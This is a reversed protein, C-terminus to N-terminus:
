TGPPCQRLWWRANARHFRTKQDVPRDEAPSSTKGEQAGPLRSQARAAVAGSHFIAKVSCMQINVKRARSAGRCRRGRRARFSGAHARGCPTKKEHGRNFSVRDPLNQLLVERLVRKYSIYFGSTGPYESDNPPIKLGLSHNRKEKWLLTRLTNETVDARSAAGNPIPSPMSPLLLQAQQRATQGHRASRLLNAPPKCPNKEACSSNFTAPQFNFTSLQLNAARVVVRLRRCAAPGALQRPPRRLQARARARARARRTSLAAAVHSRARSTICPWQDRANACPNCQSACGPSYRVCACARACAGGLARSAHVCAAPLGICTDLGRQVIAAPHVDRQVALDPGRNM